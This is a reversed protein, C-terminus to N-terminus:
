ITGRASECVAERDGRFEPDCRVRFYDILLRAIASNSVMVSEIYGQGFASGIQRMYRAYARILMSDRWTLGATVVLSNFSDSEIHEFWAARFAEEFREFLSDPSHIEGSPLVIGFDLVWVPQEGPRNIEHPHEDLVDVGLRELIPLIRTLSMAPGIRIVKFRLERSDSVVPAYLDLALEEPELQEIILSDSIGTSPSFDEKYSEPFADTFVAILEPVGQEIALTQYDDQWSRTAAALRRELEFAEIQPIEDAPEVHVIYHLRALVSESM